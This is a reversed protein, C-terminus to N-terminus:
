IVYMLVIKKHLVVGNVLVIKYVIMPKMMIVHVASMLKQIELVCVLVTLNQVVNRLV